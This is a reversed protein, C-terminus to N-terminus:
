KFTIVKINEGLFKFVAKEMRWKPGRHYFKGAKLDRGKTQTIGRYAEL